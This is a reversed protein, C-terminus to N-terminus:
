SNDEWGFAAIIGGAFNSAMYINMTEVVFEFLSNESAANSATNVSVPPPNTTSSAPGYANNPAAMVIGTGQGVLSGIFTAATSPIFNSLAAAVWTPTTVSGQVGAIVQPLATVNSGAAVVYQVRRGMQKFSLPYKNATGDTRVWGVRAKYTYGSPMTPSTASLSMLGATTTGNWIVWLSYWTSSALAGTDLGNAGTSTGAITLSVSRLTQYVNSANEVAIEDATVTVNAGTGAASARLNKFEGQVGSLQSPSANIVVGTIDTGDGVIQALGGTVVALGTGASTKCTVIFAGSANNLVLWSKVYTPFVLNINATLTGTIIILPRGAELSSLTVNSSSMAVTAAGSTYDPVWGAGGAEPDTTNNDATNLWYGIGDTRLVRAGKPYGGIDTAYTSDYPYGGGANAWRDVASMEYLIGNMDAGSPPVGGAAIPTRTLPPFGDTLSAAGATIGIQSPVPIATRTGSNAFPISLQDPRDSLQM